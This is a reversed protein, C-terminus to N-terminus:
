DQASPNLCEAGVPPPILGPCLPNICRPYYIRPVQPPRARPPLPSHNIIRPVQPPRVWPPPHFRPVPPKFGPCKNPPPAFRAHQQELRVCSCLVRRVGPPPSSPLYKRPTLLPTSPINEKGSPLPHLCVASAIKRSAQIDAATVRSRLSPLRRARGNALEGPLCKVGSIGGSNFALRETSM